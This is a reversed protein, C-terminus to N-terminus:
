IATHLSIRLYFNLCIFHLVKNEAQKMLIMSYYSQSVRNFAQMICIIGKPCNRCGSLKGIGEEFIAGLPRFLTLQVRNAEDKGETKPTWMQRLFRICFLAHPAFIGTRLFKPRDRHRKNTNLISASLKGVLEEFIFSLARYLTLQVRSRGCKDCFQLSPFAHRITFTLM